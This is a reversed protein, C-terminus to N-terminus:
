LILGHPIEIYIEEHIDGHLFSNKVDLQHLPWGVNAACSVINRVM